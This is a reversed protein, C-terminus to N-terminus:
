NAILLSYNITISSIILINHPSFETQLINIILRNYYDLPTNEYNTIFHTLFIDEFTKTIKSTKGHVKLNNFISRNFKNYFTHKRM